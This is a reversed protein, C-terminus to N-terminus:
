VVFLYQEFGLRQGETVSRMNWQTWNRGFFYVRFHLNRVMSCAVVFTQRTRCRPIWYHLTKDVNHSRRHQWLPARWCLPVMLDITSKRMRKMDPVITDVKHM